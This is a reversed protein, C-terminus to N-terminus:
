DPSFFIKDEEYSLVEIMRVPWAAKRHGGSARHNGPGHVANIYEGIRTGQNGPNECTILVKNPNPPL